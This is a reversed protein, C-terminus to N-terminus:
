EQDGTETSSRREQDATDVLPDSVPASQAVVADVPADTPDDELVCTLKARHVLKGHLRIEPEFAEAVCGPAVGPASEIWEVVDATEELAEDFPEGVHTILDVGARRLVDVLTRIESHSAPGLKRALALGFEVVLKETERHAGATQTAAAALAARHNRLLEAVAQTPEQDQRMWAPLERVAPITHTM